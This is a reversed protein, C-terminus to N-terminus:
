RVTVPVPFPGFDELQRATNQLGLQLTTTGPALPTLTGEFAGTATFRLLRSDAPSVVLVYEELGTVLNSAADHFTAVVPTPTGPLIVLPDGVVQGGAWVDVLTSGFTTALYGDEFHLGIREEWELDLVTAEGCGSLLLAALLLSNRARMLM